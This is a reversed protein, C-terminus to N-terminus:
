SSLSQNTTTAKDNIVRLGNAPVVCDRYIPVERIEKKIPESKSEMLKNIQAKFSEAQDSLTKNKLNSDNIQKAQAEVIRKYGSDNKWSCIKWGLGFATVIALASAGIKIALPSLM